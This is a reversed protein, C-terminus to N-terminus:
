NVYTWDKMVTPSDYNNFFYELKDAKDKQYDRFSRYYKYYHTQRIREIRVFDIEGESDYIRFHEYPNEEICVPIGSIKNIGEKRGSFKIIEINRESIKNIKEKELLNQISNSKNNPINTNM